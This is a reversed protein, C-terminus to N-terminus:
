RGTKIFFLWLAIGGLVAALIYIINYTLIDGV